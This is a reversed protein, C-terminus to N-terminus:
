HMQVLRLIHNAQLWCWWFSGRMCGLVQKTEMNQQSLRASSTQHSDDVCECAESWAMSVSHGGRNTCLPVCCESPMITVTV